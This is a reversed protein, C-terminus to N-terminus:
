DNKSGGILDSCKAVLQIPNIPKILAKDDDFTGINYLTFDSPHRSVSTNSDNVLDICDRIAQGDFKRIFPNGFVQAKEDYLSYINVNM